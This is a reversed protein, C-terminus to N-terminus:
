PRKREAVASTGHHQLANALAGGRTEIARVIERIEAAVDNTRELQWIAATQRRIAEAAKLARVADALIRRATVLITILLAAAVVVIVAAVGMWLAWSRWLEADTM